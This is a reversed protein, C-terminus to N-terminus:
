EVDHQQKAWGPNRHKQWESGKGPLITLPLQPQTHRSVAPTRPMATSSIQLECNESRSSTCDCGSETDRTRPFGAVASTAIGFIHSM